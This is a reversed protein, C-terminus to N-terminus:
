PVYVGIPVLELRDRKETIMKVMSEGIPALHCMIDMEHTAWRRHQFFDILRYQRDEGARRVIDGPKM